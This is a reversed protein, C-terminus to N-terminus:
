RVMLITEINRGSLKNIFALSMFRAEEADRRKQLGWKRESFWCSIQGMRSKEKQSASIGGLMKWNSLLNM